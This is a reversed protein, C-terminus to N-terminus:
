IGLLRYPHYCLRHGYRLIKSWDQRNHRLWDQGLVADFGAFKGFVVFEVMSVFDGIIMQVVAFGVATGTRSNSTTVSPLTKINPDNSVLSITIKPSAAECFAQTIFGPGQCMTDMGVRGKKNNLIAIFMMQNQLQMALVKSSPFAFTVHGEGRPSMKVHKQATDCQATPKNIAKIRPDLLLTIDPTQLNHIEDQKCELSGIGSDMELHILEPHILAEYSALVAEYTDPAALVNIQANISEASLVSLVAPPVVLPVVLAVLNNSNASGTGILAARQQHLYTDCQANPNNIAKIRPDLPFTIDPTQLDQIEDHSCEQSGVGLESASAGNGSPRSSGHVLPISLPNCFGNM